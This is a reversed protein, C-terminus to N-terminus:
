RSRMSTARIPLKSTPLKSMPLLASQTADLMKRLMKEMRDIAQRNGSYQRFLMGSSHTLNGHITSRLVSRQTDTKSVAASLPDTLKKVTEMVASQQKNALVDRSITLSLTM